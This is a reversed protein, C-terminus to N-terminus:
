RREYMKQERCTFVAMELALLLLDVGDKEVCGHEAKGTLNKMGDSHLAKSYMLLSRCLM